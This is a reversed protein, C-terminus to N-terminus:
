ETVDLTANGLAEKGPGSGDYLVASQMGTYTGDSKARISFLKHSSTYGELQVSFSGDARKRIELYKATGVSATNASSNLVCGSGAARRYNGEITQGSLATFSKDESDSVTVKGVKAYVHVTEPCDFTPQAAEVGTQLSMLQDTSSVQWDRDFLAGYHAAIPASTILVATERNNMISNEDWNISSILTVNGDILMGKNHIYDVGMGKVNAIRAQAGAQNLLDATPQNKPKTTAGHPFVSEDNLLVRVKVGRKVASIVADVLPNTGGTKWGSDFTMLEIDISTRASAIANRLGDLSNPSTIPQAASAELTPVDTNGPTAPTTATPTPKPQTKTQDFESGGSRTLDMVDGHSTDKDGDFMTAFQQALSSDDLLVEWGRNGVSGPQPNGTPSYNESGILLKQGDIVAYKAHDFRFRRKGGAKSTMEFLSDQGRASTMASVLQSQIGKAASSLGGVPQGEEIIEVHVGAQIRNTLADAIEPSTLEYINLLLTTQASKIASVTLDLNNIPAESVQVSFAFGASPAMLAASLGLSLFFFSKSVFTM